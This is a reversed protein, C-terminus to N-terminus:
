GNLGIDDVAPYKTNSLVDFAAEAAVLDADRGHFRSPLCARVDKAAITAPIMDKSVPIHEFNEKLFMMMEVWHTDTRSRTLVLLRGYGGFDRDCRAAAAQNGLVQQAVPKLYPFVKQGTRRWWTLVNQCDLQPFSLVVCNICCYTINSALLKNNPLLALLLRSRQLCCCDTQKVGTTSRRAICFM